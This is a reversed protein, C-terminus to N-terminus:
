YGSEGTMAGQLRDCASIERRAETIAPDLGGSRGITAEALPVQESQRLATKFTDGLGDKATTTALWKGARSPAAVEDDSLTKGWVASANEVPPAAPRKPSM